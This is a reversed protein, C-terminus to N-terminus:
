GCVLIIQKTVLSYFMEIGFSFSLNISKYTSKICLRERILWNVFIKPFSARQHRKVNLEELDKELQCKQQIGM